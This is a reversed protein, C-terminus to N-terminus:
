MEVRLATRVIVRIVQVIDLSVIFMAAKRVPPLIVAQQLADLAYVIAM